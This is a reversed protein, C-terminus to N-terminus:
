NWTGIVTCVTIDTSRITNGADSGQWRWQMVFTRAANEADVRALTGCRTGTIATCGVGGVAVAWAECAKMAQEQNYTGLPVCDQWTQGAGNDHTVLACGADAEVAGGTGVVGGTSTVAGGTAPSGGTSTVAGGTAHAGGTAAVAGGTASAGGTGPAGGTAAPARGSDAADLAALDATTFAEGSCGCLFVTLVILNFLKM